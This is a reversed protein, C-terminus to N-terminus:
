VKDERGPSGRLRYAILRGAIAGGLADTIPAPMCHDFGQAISAASRARASNDGSWQAHTIRPKGILEGRRNLMFRITVDTGKPLAVSSLCRNLDSFMADITKAPEARAASAVGILAALAVGMAKLM